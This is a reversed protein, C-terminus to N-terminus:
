AAAVLARNDVLSNFGAGPSLLDYQELIELSRDFEKQPYPLTHGFRLRPLHFDSVDPRGWRYGEPIDNILYSIYKRKNERSANLFDSARNVARYLAQLYQPQLDDRIVDTAVFYGEALINAGLKEALAVYPEMIVAAVVEGSLVADFRSAPGGFHALKLRDRGLFGELLRIAAFHSGAFFNVGVPQDALQAARDIPSNPATIIAHLPRSPQLSTIRVDCGNVTKKSLDHTRRVNGEECARFLNVQGEEFPAHGVIPNVLSTDPSGNKPTGERAHIFEVDLGEDVFFGEDRAVYWPLSYIASSVENVIKKLAM